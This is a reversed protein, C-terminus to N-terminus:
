RHTWEYEWCYHKSIQRFMGEWSVDACNSLVKNLEKLTEDWSYYPLVLLHGKDTSQSLSKQTIVHVQFDNTGKMGEAGVSINLWFDVEAPDEFIWKDIPDFDSCDFSRIVPVFNLM